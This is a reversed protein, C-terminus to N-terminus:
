ILGRSQDWLIPTGSVADRSSRFLLCKVVCSDMCRQKQAVEKSEFKPM